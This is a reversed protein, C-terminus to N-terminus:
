QLFRTFNFFSCLIRNSFVQFCQQLTGLNAKGLALLTGTPCGGGGGLFTQLILCTYTDSKVIKDLACYKFNALFNM